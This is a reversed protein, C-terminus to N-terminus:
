REIKSFYYSVQELEEDTFGKVHKDMMTGARRGYKYDLLTTYMGTKSLGAISPTTMISKGDIGHCSTCTLSLMEGKAADYEASFGIGYLCLLSLAIKKM